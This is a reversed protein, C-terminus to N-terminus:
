WLLKPLKDISQKNNAQSSASSLDRYVTYVSVSRCVTIAAMQQHESYYVM